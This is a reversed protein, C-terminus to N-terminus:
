FRSKPNKVHIPGIFVGPCSYVGDVLIGDYNDRFQTYEEKPTTSNERCAYIYERVSNILEPVMLLIREEVSKRSYEDLASTLWPSGSEFATHVILGDELMKKMYTDLRKSVFLAIYRECGAPVPPPLKKMKEMTSSYVM